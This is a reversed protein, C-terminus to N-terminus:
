KHNMQDLINKFASDADIGKSQCINRAIQEINGFDGKGALNYLNQVMPNGGMRQKMLQMAMDKPSM